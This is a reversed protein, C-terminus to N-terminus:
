DSVNLIAKRKSLRTFTRIKHFFNLNLDLRHFTLVPLLVLLNLHISM